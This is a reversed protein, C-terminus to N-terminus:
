FCKQNFMSFIRLFNSAGMKRAVSIAYKGNSKADEETKGPTVLEFNVISPNVAALLELLYRGSKLSSDKFSKIPDVRSTPRHKKIMENSWNIMDEDTIERGNASSLGRLTEIIHQRM